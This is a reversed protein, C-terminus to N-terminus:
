ATQSKVEYIQFDVCESEWDKSANAKVAAEDESDAEVTIHEYVVCFIDFKM